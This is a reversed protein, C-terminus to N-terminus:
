RRALDAAAEPGETVEELRTDEVGLRKAAIRYDFDCDAPRGDLRVGRVSFGTATKTTVLLLIPEQCVPTLFVHYNRDRNVTEAFMEEFAVWARGEVLSGSGFDELWVEPSEISYVARHGYHRTELVASKTGSETIRHVVAGSGNYIRFESASDDNQDLYIWVEDNSHLMLDSHVYAPDSWLTGYEGGGAGLVVDPASNDEGQFYGGIQAFGDRLSVLSGLVILLAVIGKKM